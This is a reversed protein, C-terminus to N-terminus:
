SRKWWNPDREWPATGGPRQAEIFEMLLRGGDLPPIPILLNFLAWTVNLGCLELLAIQVSLLWRTEIFRVQGLGLFALCLLGAFALQVAPGAIIVLVRQQREHLDLSGVAAGGLFTLVIESEAGFYRGTLVHGFEHLLISGTVAVIWFLGSAVGVRGAVILGIVAHLM